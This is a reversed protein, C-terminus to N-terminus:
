VVSKRDWHISESPLRLWTQPFPRYNCHRSPKTNELEVEVVWTSKPCALTSAQSGSVIDLWLLFFFDFLLFFFFVFFFFLSFFLLVSVSSSLSVLFSFFLALFSLIISFFCSLSWFSDSFCFFLFSVSFLCFVPSIPLSLNSVCLGWRHLSPLLLSHVYVLDFTYWTDITITHITM